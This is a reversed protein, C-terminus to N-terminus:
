LDGHTPIPHGRFKNLGKRITEVLSVPDSPFSRLYSATLGRLVGVRISVSTALVATAHDEVQHRERRKNVHIKFPVWVAVFLGILAGFIPLAGIAETPSGNARRVIVVPQYGEAPRSCPDLQLCGLCSFLM